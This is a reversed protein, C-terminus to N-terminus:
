QGTARPDPWSSGIQGLLHKSYVLAMWHDDCYRAIGGVTIRYYIRGTSAELVEIKAGDAYETRRVTPEQMLEDLLKM